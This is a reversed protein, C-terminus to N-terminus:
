LNYSCSQFHKAHLIAMTPSRSRQPVLAIYGYARPFTSEVEPDALLRSSAEKAGTGGMGGM